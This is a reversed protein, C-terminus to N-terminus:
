ISLFKIITLIEIILIKPFTSTNTNRAALVRKRNIIRKGSKTPISSNINNSVRHNKKVVINAVWTM